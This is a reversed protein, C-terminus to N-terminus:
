FLYDRKNDTVETGLEDRLFRLRSQSITFLGHQWGLQIAVGGNLEGLVTLKPREQLNGSDALAKTTM